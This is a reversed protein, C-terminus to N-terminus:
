YVLPDRCVCADSDWVKNPDNLCNQEEVPDCSNPPPGIPLISFFGAGINEYGGSQTANSVIFTYDGPSLSPIWLMASMWPSGNPDSAPGWSTGVAEGILYGYSDYVSVKPMGYTQSIDPGSVTVENYANATLTTPVSSFGPRFGINTCYIQTYKYPEVLALASQGGCPINPPEYVGIRWIAPCRGGNLYYTNNGGLKQFFLHEGQPSYPPRDYVDAQHSGTLDYATPILQTQNILLYTQTGFGFPPPSDGDCDGAMLLPAIVLILLLGAFKRM